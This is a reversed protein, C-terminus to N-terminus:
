TALVLGLAPGTVEVDAGLTVVTALVLVGALAGRLAEKWWPPQPKPTIILTGDNELEITDSGVPISRKASASLTVGGVSNDFGTTFNLQTQGVTFSASDVTGTITSSGNSKWDQSLSVSQGYGDVFSASFDNGSLAYYLPSDLAPAEVTISTKIEINLNAASTDIDFTLVPLSDFVFDVPQDAAMSAFGSGWFTNDDTPQQGTADSQDTPENGAYPYPTSVTTTGDVGGLPDTTTFSGLTSNYNRARLDVTVGFQLQGGFGLTPELATNAISPNGWADYATGLALSATPTTPIVNGSQDLGIGDPTGSILADAWQGGPGTLLDTTSGSVTKAALTPLSAADDWTFTNATTSSGTNTAGVLDSSPNYTRTQTTNYTGSVLQLTLLRGANDYTNISKNTSTTTQTLMRGSADYTYVTAGTPPSACTNSSTGVFTWCLEGADDYRYTTTVGNTVSTARNGLTDYTYTTGPTNSPTQNTLQGAGDYGYTTTITTTATSSPTVATSASSAPGTGNANTATVTFTYATGNSLGTVTAATSGTTAATFGGPSSTVTYGTIPSGGTSTPATWSVIASANRPAASVATPAAPVPSGIYSTTGPQVAIDDFFSTGNWTAGSDDGIQVATLNATGTNGTTTSYAADVPTPNDKLYYASNITAATASVSIALEIRYWTNASLVTPFTKLTTGANNQVFLQNGTSLEIRAATGTANRIDLLRTLQSPLATGPNYYMRVAISTANYTTWGMFTATGSTMGMSYGLGGHAAAGSAFTLTAGTGRAVIGFADGSGGGSNSATVTTGVTGGEATNAVNALVPTVAASASSATSSGIANTAKVTFTYATGNTLGTVTATTAGTTTATFSGPSATVTYGTIPSGGSSTPATWSVVAATNAATAAVVTPAAPVTPGAGLYSTTGPQVAIDDLYETGTWAAGSTDGVAVKTINATGTNGTSTSYAPDVPTTGDGLYYAANITAATASISIALEIRYWTNTSLTTPFTTVTTGATNQVILQNSSSVSVRAATAGSNRVDLLRVTTSPLTSGPNYYFRVAVSTANYGTWGVSTSAGSVGTLSYGLSGHKAATTAFTLSAGAARTVNNFADGSNGGSNANTVTTGNTGGEASNFVVATYLPTVSASSGSPASTGIANTATVAFTYATGNTLGAVVASTAGTTTATLGGPYATVTYGTVPTGGNNTPATWSVTAQTSTASATVATPAAPATLSGGTTVAQSALRGDANYTLTASVASGPLNQTYSVIKGKATGTTGYTYSRFGDPLTSTLLQGDPNYTFGGATTASGGSAKITEGTMRGASDYSYTAQAGDPYNMTTRRGAADYVWTTATLGPPTESTLEGSANYVYSWTGSGTVISQLHGLTDYSNTYTLTTGPGTFTTSATTGDPNLVTTTARGSADTAVSKHGNTPDDYYTIVTARNLQDAASTIENANDYIWNQTKSAANTRVTRNGRADYTYSTTNGLADTVSLITSDGNYLYTITGDTGTQQTHLEGRSTYTNTTVVGDPATVTAQRGSPDYTYATILGGPTTSSAVWGQPTYTTTTVGGDPDTVQFVRGAADYVTTTVGGGVDGTVGGLPATVQFVRGAPTYTTTTTGGNVDTVTSQRGASDYTYTTIPGTSATCSGGPQAVCTVRGTSDFATITYRGVGGSGSLNPCAAAGSSAAPATTCYVRGSADYATKVVSGDPNDVEIKNGDADYQYSTTQGLQNTTSMVRGLAGYTTLTYPAVGGTGGSTPCTGGPSAVCNQNGNADYTYHTTVYTLVGGVIQGPKDVSTLLGTTPDYHNTTVAGTPDTVTLQRNANDYTYTTVGGDAATTTHVLGSAYYTTTTYDGSGGTGGVPCTGGPLAMCTQRGATDYTYSTVDGAGDTQTLVRGGSDYTYSTTVGDADTQQTVLGSGNIAYTTVKGTPDTMTSPQVNTGTYTYAYSGQSSVYKATVRGQSDYSYASYTGSGTTLGGGAAPCVGGPSADCTLHNAADYTLTDQGGLRSTADTLDALADSYDTYMANGTGGSPNPLNDLTERVEHNSDWYYTVTGSSGILTNTVVTTWLGSGAYAGYAFSDVEGSARTQSAVQGSTNFTNTIQVVGTPDTITALRNSTDYGYTTTHGGIDQVTTLNGSADYGYNVTGAPGTVSTIKGAGTGSTGYVFSLQAGTSSVATTLQGSTRNITVTQGTPGTMMALRGLSDFDWFSSDNFTVRYNGGVISLDAPYELPRTFPGSGTWEVQRGDPATLQVGGSVAQITPYYSSSWGLGLGGASLGNESDLLNYTRTWDLGYVGAPSALDTVSEKLNGTAVDVPDDITSQSQVHGDDGFTGAPATPPATPNFDVDLEPPNPGYDSSNFDRWDCVSTPSQADVELGYYGLGLEGVAGNVIFTTPTTASLQLAQWGDHATPDVTPSTSYTVTSPTWPSTIVRVEANAACTVSGPSVAYPWMTLTATGAYTYGSPAALSAFPMYITSYSTGNSSGIRLHNQSVYPTPYDAGGTPYTLYPNDSNLYIDNYGPDFALTLAPDIEVPFVRSPDDLWAPDISVEIVASRATQSALKVLVPTTTGAPAVDDQSALATADVADRGTYSAVTTGNGSLFDVEGDNAQTATTGAPLAVTVDYSSGPATSPLVVLDEAGNDLNQYEVKVGSASIFTATHGQLDAEAAASGAPAGLPEGQAVAIPIAM